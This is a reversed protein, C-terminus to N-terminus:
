LKPQGQLEQSYTYRQQRHCLSVDGGTLVAAYKPESSIRLNRQSFNKSPSQNLTRLPHSPTVWRRSSNTSQKTGPYPSITKVKRRWSSLSPTTKTAPTKMSEYNTSAMTTMWCLKSTPIFHRSHTPKRILRERKTFLRSTTNPSGFAGDCSVAM